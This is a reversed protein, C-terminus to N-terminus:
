PNISVGELPDGGGFLLWFVAGFVGFAVLLPVLLAGMYFLVSFLAAM